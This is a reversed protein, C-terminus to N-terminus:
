KFNQTIGNATDTIKKLLNSLTSMMTSLRDTARQLRLSDEESMEGAQEFDARTAKLAAELDAKVELASEIEGVTIPDAILQDVGGPITELTGIAKVGDDIRVALESAAQNLRDRVERWQEKEQNIRDVEDIIAKLDEQASVNATWNILWAQYQDVVEAQIVVPTPTSVDRPTTIPPLQQTSTGSPMADTPLGITCGSLVACALIVRAIRRM